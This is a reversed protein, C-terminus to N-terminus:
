QPVPCACHSRAPGLAGLPALPRPGLPQLALPGLGAEHQVPRGQDSNGGGFEVQASTSRGPRNVSRPVTVGCTSPCPLEWPRHPVRAWWATQPKTRHATPEAGAPRSPFLWSCPGVEGLARCPRLPDLGPGGLASGPSPGPAATGRQPRLLSWPLCPLWRPHAASSAQGTKRPQEVPAPPPECPFSDKGCDPTQLIWCPRSELGGETSSALLHAERPVRPDGAWLGRPRM